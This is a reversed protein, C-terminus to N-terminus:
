SSHHVCSYNKQRIERIWFCSMMMLQTERCSVVVSVYTSWQPQWIIIVLTTDCSKMHCCMVPCTVYSCTMLVQVLLSVQCFDSCKESVAFFGKDNSCRFLRRYKMFDANQPFCVFLTMVLVFLFQDDCSVSPPPLNVKEYEAKGGLAVWFFNEPESGEQIVVNSYTSQLSLYSSQCM